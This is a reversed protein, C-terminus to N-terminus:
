IKTLNVKRFLNSFFYLKYVKQPESNDCIVGNQGCLDIETTWNLSGQSV